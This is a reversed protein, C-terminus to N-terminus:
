PLPKRGAYLIHGSLGLVSPDTSAQYAIELLAQYAGPDREHLGAVEEQVQNLIGQSAMVRVMEFGIGAFFPVVEEARYLYAETFRGPEDNRYVGEELLRLVEPLRASGGELLVGLLWSYRTMVTALLLGGPRLVRLTERAAQQRDDLEVLHYLPGLALVADFDGAAFSGLDRADLELM